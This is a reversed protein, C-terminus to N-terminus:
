APAPARAPPAAALPGSPVHACLRPLPSAPCSTVPTAARVRTLAILFCRRRHYGLVTPPLPAADLPPPRLLRQHVAWSLFQAPRYPGLFFSPLASARREAWRAAADKSMFSMAFRVLKEQSVFGDAMFAEPVLKYYTLVSYLFMKGQTRDGDFVAPPNPRLVTKPAPHPASFDPGPAPAPVAPAPAPPPNQTSLLLQRLTSQISELSGEVAALRAMAGSDPHPAHVSPIEPQASDPAPPQDMPVSSPDLNSTPSSPASSYHDSDTGAGFKGIKVLQDRLDKRRSAPFGFLLFSPSEWALHLELFILPCLLPTPSLRACTSPCSTAAALPGSPVHACLRPLPSAPCSTVPTAARVRTLAILFCRRRHYGLVTPPLPAADLPPPRLLRQHVAGQDAHYLRLPLQINAPLLSNQLPHPPFVRFSNPPRTLGSSSPPSHAPALAFSPNDSPSTRALTPLCTFASPRCPSSRPAALDPLSYPRPSIPCPIIPRPNRPNAAPCSNGPPASPAPIQPPPKRAPIIPRPHPHYRFVLPAATEPYPDHPPARPRSKRLPSSPAPIPIHHLCSRPPQKRGPCRPLQKRTPIM